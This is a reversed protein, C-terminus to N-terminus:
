QASRNASIVSRLSIMLQYMENQRTDPAWIGDTLNVAVSLGLDSFYELQTTSGSHGVGSFQHEGATTLTCPCYGWTGQGMSSEADITQLGGLALPSLGASNKALLENGWHALQPMSLEVGATAFNPEGPTSGLHAITGLGAGNALQQLLTDYSQETVQEVLLGLALYNSSSYASKSGPTFLLPNAASAMLAKVPTDIAAPDAGYQPTDRYNTLGSSHMLLQRVTFQSAPFDPAALLTPMPADLDIRGADALQWIMAATFTKTISAIDYTDSTSVAVTTTADAGYASSWVRGDDLEVAVSVGGPIANASIWTQMASDLASALTSDLSSTVTGSPSAASTAAPPSTAIPGTAPAAAVPAAEFVPAAPQQSPVRLSLTTASTASGNRDGAAGARTALDTCATATLVVLGCCAFALAARPPRTWDPRRAGAHPWLTPRRSSALDEIPGLLLVAVLTVAGTLVLLAATHTGTPWDIALRRLLLFSVVVAGSHWLYVTMTRRSIWSIVAGPRASTAVREIAPRAVFFLALWTLGVLLHAIHDDNVIHDPIPQTLCWAAAGLGAVGAIALWRRRTWGALGGDRHVFGLMLFAGYLALDGLKWTTSDPGNGRRAVVELVALISLPLAFALAGLRRVLWLLGPALLILWLLVRLYWLPAALYGGEWLSGKPDDLPLIWWIAHSWPMATRATGDILHSIEMAGLALAAFAWLPVLIRRARDIVVSRAGRRLSKALLSGTVFFMTPVAAVIYTLPVAGTAHWLVVRVLAITRVADLFIERESPTASLSAPALPPAVPVAREAVVTM